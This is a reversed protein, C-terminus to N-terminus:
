SLHSALAALANALKALAASLAFLVDIGAALVSSFAIEVTSFLHYGAAIDACVARAVAAGAVVMVVFLVVRNLRTFNQTSM